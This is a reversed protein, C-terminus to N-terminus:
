CPNSFSNCIQAGPPLVTNAWWSVGSDFYEGCTGGPCKSNFGQSNIGALYWQGNYLLFTPGGSNGVKTDNTFRVTTFPNGCPDGSQYLNWNGTTAKYSGNDVHGILLAQQNNIMGGALGFATHWFPSNRKDVFSNLPSPNYQFGFTAYDGTGGCAETIPNPSASYYYALGNSILANWNPCHGATIFGSSAGAKWVAAIACKGDSYSPNGPKNFWIDSGGERTPTGLDLSELAVVFDPEILEKAREEGQWVRVIGDRPDLSFLPAPDAASTQDVFHQMEVASAGGYRRIVPQGLEAELENLVDTVAQTEAERSVIRVYAEVEASLTVNSYTAGFWSGTLNAQMFDYLDDNVEALRYATEIPVGQERAYMQMYEDVEPLGLPVDSDTAAAIPEQRGDDTDAGIARESGLAGLVCVVVAVASVKVRVDNPGGDLV